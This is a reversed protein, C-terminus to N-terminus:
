ARGPSKNGIVLPHVGRNLAQEEPSAWRCNDPEYNGKPDIRDLSHLPTPKRGMDNLFATYSTKWRECVEIGKGGYYKWDKRSSNTCRRKMGAWAEYEVSHSDKHRETIATRKKEPENFVGIPGYIRLQKLHYLCLERKYTDSVRECNPAVCIPKPGTKM